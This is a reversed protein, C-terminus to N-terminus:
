KVHNKCMKAEIFHFIRLTWNDDENSLLLLTFYVLFYIIVVLKLFTHCGTNDDNRGM